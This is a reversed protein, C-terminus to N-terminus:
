NQYYRNLKVCYHLLFLLVLITLIQYKVKAAGKLFSTGIEKVETFKIKELRDIVENGVNQVGTMVDKGTKKIQETPIKQGITDIGQKLKTGAQNIQETPINPVPTKEM